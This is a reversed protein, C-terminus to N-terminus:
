CYNESASGEGGHGGLRTANQSTGGVGSDLARDMSGRNLYITLDIATHFSIPEKYSISLKRPNM